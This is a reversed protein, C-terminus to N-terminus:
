WEVKIHGNNFNWQDTPCGTPLERAYEFEVKYGLEVLEEVIANRIKQSDDFANDPKILDIAITASCLGDKIARNIREELNKLYKKGESNIISKRKAENASIM